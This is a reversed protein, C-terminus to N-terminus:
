EANQTSVAEAQVSTSPASGDVKTDAVVNNEEIHCKEVAAVLEETLEVSSNEVGNATSETPVAKTDAPNEPKDSTETQEALPAVPEASDDSEVIAHPSQGQLVEPNISNIIARLRQIEENADQLDQSLREYKDHQHRVVGINNRIYEMPDEPREKIIRIFIKTLSDLVSGRELYRRIEDRKPDIPQILNLHTPTM